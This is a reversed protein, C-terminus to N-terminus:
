GAGAHGSERGRAADRGRDSEGFVVAGAPPSCLIGAASGDRLTLTIGQQHAQDAIPLEVPAHGPACASLLADPTGLGGHLLAGFRGASDTREYWHRPQPPGDARRLIVLAGAVPRGATDVVRGEARTVTDCAALSAVAIVLGLWRTLTSSGRAPAM